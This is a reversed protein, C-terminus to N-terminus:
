EFTGEIQPTGDRVVERGRAFALQITHSDDTLLIDADTGPRLRGKNELGLADATNSTVLSVAASLEVGPMDACAW